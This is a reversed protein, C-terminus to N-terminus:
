ILAKIALEVAVIVCVVALVRRVTVAPVRQLAWVGAQAGLVIGPAL